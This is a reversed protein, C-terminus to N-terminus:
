WKVDRVGLWYGIHNTAIHGFASIFVILVANIWGPFFVFSGLALAGVTYDIQDFPIWPSGPKVGVRRKFFSKVADGMLAGASILASWTIASFGFPWYLKSLIFGALMAVIIGIIFGAWTKHSGFIRIGGLSLGFDMPANWPSYKALVPPAMNALYAPIMLYFAQVFTVM